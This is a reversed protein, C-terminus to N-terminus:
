CHQYQYHGFLPSDMVWKHMNFLPLQFLLVAKAYIFGVCNKKKRKKLSFTKSLPLFASDWDALPTNLFQSRLYYLISLLHRYLCACVNLFFIIVQTCNNINCIYLLLLFFYHFHQRNRRGQKLSSGEVLVRIWLKRDSYVTLLTNVRHTTFHLSTFRPWLKAAHKRASFLHWADNYWWACRSLISNM